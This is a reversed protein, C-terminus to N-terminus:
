GYSGGTRNLEAVLDRHLKDEKRLRKLMSEKGKAKLFTRKGFMLKRGNDIWGRQEAEALAERVLDLGKDSDRGNATFFIGREMMTGAIKNNEVTYRCEMGVVTAKMKVKKAYYVRLRLRNDYQVSHGGTVKYDAEFPKANMKTREQLVVLMSSGSRYLKPILSKLWLSVFNAQLPFAREPGNDEIKKLLEEPLLKTLTDVLFGAGVDESIKGAEKGKRLRDLMSQVDDHAENLSGSMKFGSRPSIAGYWKKEAAFETDLIFTPHGYGRLSEIIALALASKGVQNPGHVLTMCGLPHGGVSTARNYSTLITPVIREEQMDSVTTMHKVDKAIAALIDSASGERTAKSRAM